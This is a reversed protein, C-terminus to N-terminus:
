RRYMQYITDEGDIVPKSVIVEWRGYQRFVTRNINLPQNRHIRRFKLGQLATDVINLIAKGTTKANGTNDTYISVEYTIRAHNESCDDTASERYPYNSTEEVVVCPFIATKEDYGTTVDANPYIATVANFITDVVKSEIDIM